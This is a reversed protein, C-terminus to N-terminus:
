QLKRWTLTGTIRGEPRNGERLSLRLLDGEFEYFRVLGTGVWSANMPSGIVHHVVSDTEPHVEVTGFYAFGARPMEGSGAAVRGPLDRPMGVASMNGLADYMIRGVYANDVTEGSERFSVFSVLDWNGVFRPDIESRDADDDGAAMEAGGTSAGFLFLTGLVIATLKM